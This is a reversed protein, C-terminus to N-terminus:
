VYQFCHSEEDPNFGLGMFFKCHDDQNALFYIQPVCFATLLFFIAMLFRHHQLTANESKKPLSQEGIHDCADQLTKGFTGTSILDFTAGDIGSVFNIAAFNLLVGLVDGATAILLMAGISSCLGQIGQTFCAIARGLKRTPDAPWFTFAAVLDQVSADPNFCFIFIAAFQAVVVIPEGSLDQIGGQILNVYLLWIFGMQFLWPILGFFFLGKTDWEEGDKPGFVSIFSYTDKPYHVDPDFELSGVRKKLDDIEKLKEDIYEKVKLDITDPATEEAM